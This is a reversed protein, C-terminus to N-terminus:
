GRMWMSNRASDLAIAVATAWSWRAASCSASRRAWRSCRRAWRSSSASRQASGELSEPLLLASVHRGHPNVGGRRLRPRPPGGYGAGQGTGRLFHLRGHAAPGALVSPLGRARGRGPPDGTGSTGRAYENRHRGRGGLRYRGPDGWGGGTGQGGGR